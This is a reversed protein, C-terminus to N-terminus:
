FHLMFSHTHALSLSDALAITSGPYSEPLLSFPLLSYSTPPHCSLLFGWLFFFVPCFTCPTLDPIWFPPFTHSIHPTLPFYLYM